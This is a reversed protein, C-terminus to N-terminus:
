VAIIFPFFITKKPSKIDTRTAHQVSTLQLLLLLLGGVDLHFSAQLYEYEHSTHM